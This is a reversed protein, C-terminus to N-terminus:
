LRIPFHRDEYLVALGIDIRRCVERAAREEWGLDERLYQELALTDCKGGYRFASCTFRDLKELDSPHGSLPHAHLYHEFFSRCKKGSIAAELGRDESSISVRVPIRDRCHRRFDVAFRRAVENYEKMPLEDTDRPTINTLEVGKRNRTEAMFYLAAAPPRLCVISCHEGLGLSEAHIGGPRREWGEATGSFTLLEELIKRQDLEKSTLRIKQHRKM